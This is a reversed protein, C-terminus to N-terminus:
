AVEGPRVALTDEAAVKRLGAFRRRAGAIGGPLLFVVLIFLVGLIFLPESLPIRVVDPLGQV